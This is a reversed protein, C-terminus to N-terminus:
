LLAPFFFYFNEGCVRPHDKYSNRATGYRKTKGACAPTIRTFSVITCSRNLKGRVRPPSGTLGRFIQCRRLNEGCVRPHDQLTRQARNEYYTKGACAPTIRDHKPLSSEIFRKGRVRPPSGLWFYLKIPTVMNEGCVRPHDKKPLKIKTRHVTKGACAPTIRM